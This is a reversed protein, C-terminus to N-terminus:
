TVSAYEMGATYELLTKVNHFDSISSDPPPVPHLIVPSSSVGTDVKVDTRGKTSAKHKEGNLVM